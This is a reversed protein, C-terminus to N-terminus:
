SFLINHIENGLVYGGNLYVLWYESVQIKDGFKVIKEM